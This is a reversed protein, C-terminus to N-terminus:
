VLVQYPNEILSVLDQMFRAATAGDTVRHDVSLSLWVTPVLELAEGVARPRRAVRGVALIAAQPPNIIAHFVDIGFMGLNSITFTGGQLDEPGLRNDRARDVVDVRRRAIEALSLRDAGHFVPVTLGRPTDVALCPNIEQFRRLRGEEFSANLAPHAALAQAVAALLVDTLSLRVGARAEVAPLLTERLATAQRMDAEVSLYFHPATHFSTSMREGTLRQISTLEVWEGAPGAGAGTEPGPAAHSAGKIDDLTIRGRPGTGEVGALDVDLATALRRAAPTVRAPSAEAEARANVYAQVDEQTIRGGPGSGSLGALDVGHEQALRRASPSAKLRQGDGAEEVQPAASVARVHDEAPPAPTLNLRPSVEGPELLYGITTTVPVTTGVAALEPGLVGTGPSEIDVTAKESEVVLLPEGKTVPEGPGKLWEVITGQTVVFSLKPMLIPIAM